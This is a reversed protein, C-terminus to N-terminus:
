RNFRKMQEGVSAVFSDLKQDSEEPTKAVFVENLSLPKHDLGATEWFNNIQYQTELEYFEARAKIAEKQGEGSKEFLQKYKAPAVKLWLPTDDSKQETLASEWLKRIVGTDTTPNKSLEKVVKEKQTSDMQSFQKREGETLLSLFPFQKTVDEDLKKEKEISDIIKGLREDLKSRRQAVESSKNFDEKLKGVPKTDLKLNQGKVMGSTPGEGSIKVSPKSGNKQVDLTMIGKVKGNTGLKVTPMSSDLTKLEKPKGGGVKSGKKLKAVITKGDFQVANDKGANTDVKSNGTTTVDTITGLGKIGKIGTIMSENLPKETIGHTSLIEDLKEKLKPDAKSESVLEIYDVLKKADDKSMARGFMEESWNATVNLNKAISATWEHMENIAKAKETGWEHLANVGKALQTNWENIGNLMEANHDVTEAIANTVNANNGVWDQTHNLVKANYDVVETMKKTLQYHQNSKEALAQSHSAVKNLNKAISETWAMHKKQLENLEKVYSKLTQSDKNSGELIANEIAALRDQTKSLENKVYVTWQQIKEENVNEMKEESKNKVLKLAEERLAIEGPYKDTVDFISVQENIIGLDPTLNKHDKEFKSYSENLQSIQNQIRAKVSENVTELQAKEFGPKAVLDYTYIQQIAVTKDENVTGAARSSISLPIGSDLLSKAIQGKPTGELIEIRGRIQRQNQDYWLETVRHSVNSLAVEFREPHDLEGLLSGTAIDKKLYELHPLYEKEEYVRGNRNEVGFEAFVGELVTKGKQSVKKLNQSSRELILVNKM